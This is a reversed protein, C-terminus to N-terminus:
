SLRRSSPNTPTSLGNGGRIALFNASAQEDTTIGSVDGARRTDRAHLALSGRLELQRAFWRMAHANEM